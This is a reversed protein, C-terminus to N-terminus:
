KDRLLKKISWAAEEIFVVILFALATTAIGTLLVDSTTRNPTQVKAIIATMCGCAWCISSWLKELRRLRHKILIGILFDILLVIGLNAIFSTLITELFKMSYPLIPTRYFFQLFIYVLTGILGVFLYEFPSRHKPIITEWGASAFYINLLNVCMYSLVIFIITLVGNIMLSSNTYNSIIATPADINALITFTQFFILLCAKLSLGLISDVRSRSHRFLTPLNVSFPLWILIVSLIASFSYGWSGKFTVQTKSIAIAYIAFCILLPLVVVCLRKIIRIGGISIIAVILGLLLGFKWDNQDQFVGGIADSAGKIQLSYWILFSSVWVLAAFIGTYKGLYAKVNEIAHNRSEAMTIIGLGIIWLILNGICISIFATGPGHERALQGGIVMAPVGLATGLISGLQWFNHSRDLSPQKIGM